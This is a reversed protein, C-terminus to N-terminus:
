PIPRRRDVIACVSAAFRSGIFAAKARVPWFGSSDVAQEAAHRLAENPRREKAKRAQAKRWAQFGKDGQVMVGLMHPILMELEVLEGHQDAYAERYAQLDARLRGKLKIKIESPPEDTDIKVLAIHTRSVRAM